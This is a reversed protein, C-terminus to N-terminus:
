CASYNSLATTGSPLDAGTPACITIKGLSSLKVGAAYDNNFFVHGSFATGRRPNFSTSAFSADLKVNPFETMNVVREVDIMCSGATNCACAAGLSLGYCQSGATEDFSIYVPQNRKIAESKAFQMDAFLKEAAGQLNKREILGQFSPVALAALIAFVVVAIMLEILTVGKQRSSTFFSAKM